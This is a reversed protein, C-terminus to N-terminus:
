IRGRLWAGFAVFLSGLFSPTEIAKPGDLVIASPAPEEPAQPAVPAEVPAEVSEQAGKLAGLFKQHYVAIQSAKDTGNIIRRAGKPDDMRDNFYTSLKKLTFWGEIMGAFLILVAYEPRMAEKPNKVLDAEIGYLAKLKESAKKYNAEWTLQVYGRGWFGTPGYARGKGKGYEEIPEMSSDTEHWTTALAYALYRIDGEPYRKEWEDLIFNFGNVQSQNLSGFAKRIAEFFAKRNYIM